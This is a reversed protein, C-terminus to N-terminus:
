NKGFGFFSKKPEPVAKLREEEALEYALVKGCLQNVEERLSQLQWRLLDVEAPSDSSPETNEEKAENKSEDDQKSEKDKMRPSILAQEMRRLTLDRIYSIDEDHHRGNLGIASSNLELIYEKGSEVVQLLDMACIDMGCEKAAADIWTKYREEVEIDEDKMAFDVNSKWHKSTRRFARYHNGIKQIRIDFDWQVFGESTFFQPQMAAISCFDDWETPGAIKMKGLGGSATGIKGVCPFDPPFTAAKWNSYCTQTVLPFNEFGGLSDMVKSLKGYMIAKDQSNIFSDISNVTPLNAHAFTVLKHMWNTRAGGKCSGRFLIFNPTCSRTKNQPTDPIPRFSASISVVVSKNGYSCVSIDDWAAQEIKVEKGRVKLGKFVEYYNIRQGAIVLLTPVSM